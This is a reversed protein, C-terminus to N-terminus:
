CVRSSTLGHEMISSFQLTADGVGLRVGLVIADNPHGRRLATREELKARAVAAVTEPVRFSRLEDRPVFYMRPGIVILLGDTTEYKRPKQSKRAVRTKGNKM